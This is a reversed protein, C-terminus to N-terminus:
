ICWDLQQGRQNSREARVRNTVMRAHLRRVVTSGTHQFLFPFIGHLLCAIGAGLMPWGFSSAVRMHEFYTEGISRPHATFLKM